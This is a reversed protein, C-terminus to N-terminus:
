YYVWGMPFDLHKPALDHRGDAEMNGVLVLPAVWFFRDWVPQRVDLEVLPPKAAPNQM